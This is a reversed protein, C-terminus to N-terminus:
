CSVRDVSVRGALNISLDRGENGACRPLRLAFTTAGTTLWGRGQFQLSAASGVLTGAAGVDPWTRLVTGDAALIIWGTSWDADGACAASDTSSCVTVSDGRQVAESRAITIATVLENTFATARNSEVLRVFGPVGLGLLIGAVTVTLMLELLTFGRHSRVPTM